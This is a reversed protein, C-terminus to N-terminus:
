IRAVRRWALYITSLMGFIFGVGFILVLNPRAPFRSATPENIIKMTVDGSTYESGRNVVTDSIAAVLKEAQQVSVAFASVRLVGTGYVVQASVNKQWVRRRDLANGLDFRSWDLDHGPQYKVKSYFDSSGIVEALNEAVREASKAATYPDTGIRFKSIVLIDAEARYSLPFIFAVGTFVAGLVLGIIVARRWYTKVVDSILNEM